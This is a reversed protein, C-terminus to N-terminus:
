PVAISDLRVPVVHLAHWDFEYCQSSSEIDAMYETEHQQKKQLQFSYM